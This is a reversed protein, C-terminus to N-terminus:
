AANLLDNLLQNFAQQLLELAAASMGRQQEMLWDNYSGNKDGIFEANQLNARMEPTVPTPGTLKRRIAEAKSILIVSCRCRFGLPPWFQKDTALFICGDLARHSPRTRQDLIASYEWFPFKDRIGQLRAFQAAGYSIASETRYITELRFPSLKTVGLKDFQEDITTKWEEFSNGEALAQTLSEKLAASVRENEILAAAFGKFSHFAAASENGYAISDIPIEITTSSPAGSQNSEFTASAPLQDPKYSPDAKKAM